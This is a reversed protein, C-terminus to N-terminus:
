PWTRMGLRRSVPRARTVEEQAAAGKVALILGGRRVLGAALGALRDLPAVARATLVDANCRGPWNRRPLGASRRM